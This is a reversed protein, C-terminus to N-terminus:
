PREDHRQHTAPEIHSARDVMLGDRLYPGYLRVAKGYAAPGAVCGVIILCALIPAGHSPGPRPERSSEPHRGGAIMVGVIGLAAGLAFGALVDSPWHAGLYIRSVGTLLIMVAALSWPVFRTKPAASRSAIWALVIYLAAAATTHGSPFSFASAGAYIPTPREIHLATKLMPTLIAAGSTAALLGAVWLWRRRWLLYGVILVVAPTRIIGDGLASLGMMLRDLSPARLRFLGDLIAGDIPALVRRGTVGCALAWVLGFLLICLGGGAVLRRVRSEFMDALVM